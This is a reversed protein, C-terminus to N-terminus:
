NEEEISINLTYDDEDLIGVLELLLGEDTEYQLHCEDGNFFSSLSNKFVDLSKELKNYVKLFSEFSDFYIVQYEDQQEPQEEINLKDLLEKIQKEM